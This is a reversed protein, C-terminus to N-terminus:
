EISDQMIEWYGKRSSGKRAIKGSEQLEKMVRKVTTLSIQLKEKLEVQTVSPNDQIYAVIKKTNIEYFDDRKSEPNTEITEPNTEITESQIGMDFSYNEDLSVIIRFVDGEVFEPMKGTYYKSYKFRSPCSECARFEWRFFHFSSQKAKNIFFDM